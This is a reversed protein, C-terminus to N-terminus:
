YYNNLFIRIGIGIDYQYKGISKKLLIAQNGFAFFGIQDSLFAEIDLGGKVGALFGINKNEKNVGKINEYGVTLGIGPNVQLFDSLYFPNYYVMADGGIQTYKVNYLRGFEAYGRIKLYSNDGINYNYAASGIFGVDSKSFGLDIASVGLKHVDQAVVKLPSITILLLLYKRFKM